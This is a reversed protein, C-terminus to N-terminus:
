KTPVLCFTVTMEPRPEEALTLSYNANALVQASIALGLGRGAPKFSVGSEFISERRSELIAPGNNSVFMTKGSAHLEIVRQEVRHDKLWYIANDILNVFVPYYVSPYGTLKLNAFAKTHKLVIAHRDLRQEFLGTLYEVIETGRITVEERYLRRHLPTFLTLYGDLHDFSTRLGQYVKDLGKNVDAWNRLLRLQDRISRISSDFEHNIVEIAMGMQTLQLDLEAREELALMRREVAEMEDLRAGPNEVDIEELQARIGRLLEQKSEKVDILRRELDDRVTVIDAEEMESFDAAAFDALVERVEENVATISAQVALRIEEQVKGVAENTEAREVRTTKQAQDALQKLAREIRVRRDLELRAENAATTIEEEVTQRVKNFVTSQLEQYMVSYDDYKQELARSLGIGKPKAVYYSEELNRLNRRASEEIDLVMQAAMKTDKFSKTEVLRQRLGEAFEQAQETPAGSEYARFFVELEQDLKKKKATVGKERKRRVEELRVLAQKRAVFQPEYIGGDRFFDIALQIILNKLIDKFQKYAVNERYGERGAKELLAANHQQNIDVVGFMRRYSFFYFSASLTRRQEIGLWDFDIQGYPQVRIGDKYIYLGGFRNLKKTIEGFEASSKSTALLSEKHRGQIYAIDIKFPGCETPKGQGQNWPLTYAVPEHDYVRVKGRFQGYEDITGQFSHDAIEFEEPTFFRNRTAWDEIRGAGQHDRFATKIVPTPHGPTMENTFGLLVKELNSAEYESRNDIDAFLVDYTPSIIFHTGHGKGALSLNKVYGDVASPDISMKRFDAEFQGRVEKELGILNHGFAETMSDVDQKTPLSGAPFTRVPIEIDELDLGPQEFISWHIYCAVLDHLGDAREARTLILVQPGISAVALRGIGKEGLIPRKPKGPASPPMKLGTKANLKSETGITLWRSEFDTRTMGLGDDRLVFLKNQRYFDIEVHDAYADHANKFLESIASPIGAIQQRGLMDVARARTKFRAM